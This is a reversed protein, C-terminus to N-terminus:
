ADTLDDFVACGASPRMSGPVFPLPVPRDCSITFTRPGPLPGVLPAALIALDFPGPEVYRRLVVRGSADAVTLTTAGADGPRVGHLLAVPPGDLGAVLLRGATGCWRFAGGGLEKEKVGFGPGFIPPAPGRLAITLRSRNGRAEAVNGTRAYMRLARARYRSADETADALRVLRKNMQRSGQVFESDLYGWAVLRRDWREFRLFAQFDDDAVITERGPHVYTELT